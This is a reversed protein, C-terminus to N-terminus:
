ERGETGWADRFGQMTEPPVITPEMGGNDFHAAYDALPRLRFFTGLARSISDDIVSRPIERGTQMGRQFVRQHVLEQPATVLLIAIRYRPEQVRVRAWEREYWEESRMSGDVIVNCGKAIAALKIVEAILLSEKHLRTSASARDQAVFAEAEPLMGKIDDPDVRLFTSLPFAGQQALRRLTRSKGAGMPGATHVLWPHETQPPLSELYKTILTDQVAQRSAQYLSHYTYDLTRRISAHPGM